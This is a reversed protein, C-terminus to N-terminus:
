AFSGDEFTFPGGQFSNFETNLASSEALLDPLQPQSTSIHLNRTPPHSCSSFPNFSHVNALLDFTKLVKVNWRRLTPWTTHSPGAVSLLLHQRCASLSKTTGQQM